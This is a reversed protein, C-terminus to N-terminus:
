VPLRTSKSVEGAPSVAYAVGGSNNVLCFADSRKLTARHAINGYSNGTYAYCVVGHKKAHFHAVMIAEDLSSPLRVGRTLPKAAALAASVEAAPSLPTFHKYM